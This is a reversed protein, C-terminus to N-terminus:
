LIDTVPHIQPGAVKAQGYLNRIMSGRLFERDDMMQEHRIMTKLNWRIITALFLLTLMKKIWRNKPSFDRRTNKATHGTSFFYHYNGNVLLLLITPVLIFHNSDLKRVILGLVVSIIISNVSIM